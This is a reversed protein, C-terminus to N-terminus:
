RVGYNNLTYTRDPQALHRVQMEFGYKDRSYALISIRDAISALAPDLQGLLQRLGAADVASPVPAAYQVAFYAARVEDEPSMAIPKSQFLGVLLSGALLFAAVASLTPVIRYTRYALNM